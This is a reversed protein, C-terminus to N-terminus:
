EMLRHWDWDEKLLCGRYPEPGTVYGREVQLGSKFVREEREASIFLKPSGIGCNIMSPKLSVPM